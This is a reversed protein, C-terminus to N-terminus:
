YFLQPDIGIRIFPYNISSNASNLTFAIRKTINGSQKIHYQKILEKLYDNYKSLAKFFEKFDKAINDMHKDEKTIPFKKADYDGTYPDYGYFRVIKAYYELTDQLDTLNDYEKNNNLYIISYSLSKLFEENDFDIFSKLKKDEINEARDDDISLSLIDKIEEKSFFDKYRNARRVDALYDIRCIEDSPDLFWSECYEEFDDPVDATTGIMDLIESLSLPTLLNSKENLLSLHYYQKIHIKKKTDRRLIWIKYYFEDGKIVPKTSIRIDFKLLIQMFNNKQKYDKIISLYYNTNEKTILSKYELRAMKM